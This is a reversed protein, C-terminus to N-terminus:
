ISPRGQQNTVLKLLAHQLLFIFAHEQMYGFLAQPHLNLTQQTIVILSNGSSDKVTAFCLEPFCKAVMKCVECYFLKHVKDIGDDRQCVQNWMM